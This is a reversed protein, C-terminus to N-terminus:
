GLIRKKADDTEVQRSAANQRGLFLVILFIPWFAVAFVTKMRGVLLQEKRGATFWYYLGCGIAGIWFIAAVFAGM